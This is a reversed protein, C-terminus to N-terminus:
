NQNRLVMGGVGVIKVRCIQKYFPRRGNTVLDKCHTIPHHLDGGGSVGCRVLSSDLGHSQRVQLIDQGAGAEECVQVAGAWPGECFQKGQFTNQPPQDNLKGLARM